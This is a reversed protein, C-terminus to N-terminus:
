GPLRRFIGDAQLVQGSEPDIFGAELSVLTYGTQQMLECMEVLLPAGRYLPVLSLELQVTRIKQLSDAAGHLVEREFGQTDIKLYIEQPTPAPLLRDFLSDLTHVEIRAEGIYGSEPAADRHRPLMDLLSSSVSNAAVNISRFEPRAGLACNIARWRADGRCARQLEEFAPALPEFSIIEGAYGLDGRLERAYQGTNAGVDLVAEVGYRQVLKKRRALASEAPIFPHVEYGMRRLFRRIGLRINM